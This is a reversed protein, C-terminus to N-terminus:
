NPEIKISIDDYSSTFYQSEVTQSSTNESEGNETGHILSVVSDISLSLSTDKSDMAHDPKSKEISEAAHKSKIHDNLHEKRRYRNNCLKCSFPKERTHVRLHREVHYKSLFTKNCVIGPKLLSVCRYYAITGNQRYIVYPKDPSQDVAMQVAQAAEMGPLIANKEKIWSKADVPQVRRDM